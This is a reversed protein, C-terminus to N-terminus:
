SGFELVGSRKRVFAAISPKLRQEFSERIAEWFCLVFSLSLVPVGFCFCVWISLGGTGFGKVNMGFISTTLSLPLFFFTLLTLRKLDDAQIIAKRSEELMTMNMLITTNEVCRNSLRTANQLLHTYDDVLCSLHSYSSEGSSAGGRLSPLYLPLQSVGSSDDRSMCPGTHPSWRPVDSRRLFVLMNEVNVIHDDVASKFYRLNSLTWDTQKGTAQLQLEQDVLGQMMALFQCEAAAAFAFIDHLADRIDLRVSDSAPPLSFTEALLSANQPMQGTNNSNTGNSLVRARPPRELALKPVHMVVPECSPAMGTM